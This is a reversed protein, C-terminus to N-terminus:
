ESASASATVVINGTVNAIQVNGGAPSTLPVNAGGMTVEISLNSYGEIPTYVASFAEGASISTGTFDSTCGTLHQTVTYEAAEGASLDIKRDRGAGYHIARVIGNAKDVVFICFATDKATGATKDYTTAEGYEVDLYEAGDNGGYENNRYFCCNPVAIRILASSTATSDTIKRIKDVKYNHTHGHLQFLFKAQVSSFDFATKNVTVASKESYAILISGIAKYFDECDAPEHSCLIIGWSAADQKSNVGMLAKCFWERQAESVHEVGLGNEGPDHGDTLDYQNLMVVRLKYEDFDRCCCGSLRNNEDSAAGRNFIGIYPYLQADSLYTGNVARGYSLHDHNGATAMFDGSSFARGFHSLARRYSELGQETTTFIGGLVYDGLMVTLDVHLREKILEMAMGCHRNGADINKFWDSEGDACQHPDSVAMITMTDPTQYKRVADAVRDAESLVYDPVPQGDVYIINDGEARLSELWEAETGSFGEEVAVEYASLGQLRGDKIHEMIMSYADAPPEDTVPYMDTICDECYVRAPTSTIVNGATLGVYFMATDWYMTPLPCTSGTFPIRQVYDMGERRYTFVATKYEYGDWEEDLEFNVLYNSNGRVVGLRTTCEALKNRIIINITINEM